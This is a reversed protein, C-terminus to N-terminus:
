VNGGSKFKNFVKVTMMWASRVRVNKINIFVKEKENKVPEELQRL